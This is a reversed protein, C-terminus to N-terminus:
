TIPLMVVKRYAEGQTLSEFWRRLNPHEPREVPISMWRWIACGMPIDGMTLAEGAIFPRNKLHADLYGLIESSQTLSQDMAKEDRREPATRILNWFLPRFTPWFTSSMWDMWRDAEARVRLDDPWLHGPSHKAALYRVITNSEWLVFGEDEVTPVLGNPNLNRYQPTNVVGYDLGADIREYALQLEECLWLPKQVNVSNNRGWIRLM